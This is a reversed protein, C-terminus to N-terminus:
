QWLRRLLVQLRKQLLEARGFGAGVIQGVQEIQVGGLYVTKGTRPVTVATFPNGTATPTSSSATPSM